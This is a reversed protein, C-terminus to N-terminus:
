AIRHPFAAKGDDAALSLLSFYPVMMCVMLLAVVVKKMMKM